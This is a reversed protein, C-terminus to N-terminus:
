TRLPHCRAFHYSEYHVLVSIELLSETKSTAGHESCNLLHKKTWGASVLYSSTARRFTWEWERGTGPTSVRLADTVKRNHHQQWCGLESEPEGNRSSIPAGQKISQGGEHGRCIGPNIRWTLWLTWFYGTEKLHLNDLSERHSPPESWDPHHWRHPGNRRMHSLIFIWYWSRWRRLTPYLFSGM